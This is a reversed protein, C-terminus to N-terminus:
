IRSFRSDQMKLNDETLGYRNKAHYIGETLKSITQVLMEYLNPLNLDNDFNYFLDVISQPTKFILSLGEILDVKQQPTCHASQLMGLLSISLMTGLECKLTVLYHAWLFGFFKLVIQFLAPVVTACSDVLSACFIRRMVLTMEPFSQFFCDADELMNFLLHLSHIRRKIIESKGSLQDPLPQCSFKCLVVLAGVLVRQLQSEPFLLEVFESMDNIFDEGVSGHRLYKGIFHETTKVLTVNDVIDQAVLACM